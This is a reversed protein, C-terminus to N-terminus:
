HTMGAMQDNFNKFFGAYDSRASFRLPKVREVLIEPPTPTTSLLQMSEAIFDKLPMAHPDSAQHAGTLETQVYPPALEIVETKTDKLQYRLSETYSHIAAKTACYTPYRALTTFALGSSVTIITAAPQKLFYPLLGANLRVPGLLNTTITEEADGLYDPATHLNEARMIGASHIVANLAPHQAILEKVFSSISDANSIDLTLAAIGQNARVVADLASQRRGAIVV